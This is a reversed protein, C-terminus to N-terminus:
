ITFEVSDVVPDFESNKAEFGVFHFKVEVDHYGVKEGKTNYIEAKVVYAVISDDGSIAPHAVWQVTADPYVKRINQTFAEGIMDQIFNGINEAEREKAYLDHAFVCQCAFFLILLLASIKNIM